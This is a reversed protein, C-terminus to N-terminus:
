KMWINKLYKVPYWATFFGLVLVLALIAVIDFWQVAVPYADIIFVESMEGLKIWGFTQQGLCLLIGIVIGTVAGIASILWGETLFIKSILSNDAGLSKLTNIDAKKDIILM